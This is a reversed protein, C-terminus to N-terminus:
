RSRRKRRTKSYSNSCNNTKLYRNSSNNSGEVSSGPEISVQNILTPRELQFASAVTNALQIGWVIALIVGIIFLAEGVILIILGRQIM